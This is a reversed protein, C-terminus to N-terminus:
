LRSNVVEENGQRLVAHDHLFPGLCLFLPLRTWCRVASLLTWDDRIHNVCFPLLFAQSCLSDLFHFVFLFFFHLGFWSARLSCTLVPSFVCSLLLRVSLSNHSLQSAPTLSPLHVPVCSPFVSCAPSCSTSLSLLVCSSIVELYFLLFVLCFWSLHLNNTLCVM